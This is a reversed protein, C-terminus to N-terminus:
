LLAIKDRIRGLTVKLDAVQTELATLEELVTDKDLKKERILTALSELDTVCAHFHATHLDYFANAV